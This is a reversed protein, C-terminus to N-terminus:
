KRIEELINKEIRNMDFYDRELEEVYFRDLGSNLLFDERVGSDRSIIIHPLLNNLYFSEKRIDLIIEEFVGHPVPGRVIGKSQIESNLDQIFIEQDEKSNLEAYISKFRDKIYRHIATYLQDDENITGLTASLERYTTDGSKIQLLGRNLTDVKKRGYRTLYRNERLNDMFLERFLDRHIQDFIQKNGSLSRIQDESLVANEMFALNNITTAASDYRDFYTLIHSMAELVTMDNTDRAHEDCARVTDLLLSEFAPDRHTTSKQKAKLLKILDESSIHGRIKDARFFLGEFIARTDRIYDPEEVEVINMDKLLLEDLTDFLTHPINLRLSLTRLRSLKALESPNVEGKDSVAILIDKYEDVIKKNEPLKYMGDIKIREQQYPIINYKKALTELADNGESSIAKQEAYLKNFAQFYEENHRNVLRFVFVLARPDGLTDYIERCLRSDDAAGVTESRKVQKGITKLIERQVDRIESKPAAHIFFYYNSVANGSLFVQDFSERGATNNTFAITDSKDYFAGYMVLRNSVDKRLLDKLPLDVGFMYECVSGGTGQYRVSDRQIVFENGGSFFRDGDPLSEYFYRGSLDSGAITVYYDLKENAKGNLKIEHIM